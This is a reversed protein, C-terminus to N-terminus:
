EINIPEDMWFSAKEKPRAQEKGDLDSTEELDPVPFSSSSSAM